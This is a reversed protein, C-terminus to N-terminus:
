KTFYLNFGDDTNYIFIVDDTYLANKQDEVHGHM